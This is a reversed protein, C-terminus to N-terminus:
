KRVCIIRMVSQEIAAHESSAAGIAVDHAQLFARITKVPVLGAAPATVRGAVLAPRVDVMGAVNGNRDAAAAGSLSPKPAPEIGAATFRTASTTVGAAGGQALPDAVGVVMLDSGQAPAGGAGLPAAVLNRAGFLRVLALDSAHDAAVREAHGLPPVAIAECDDTVHAPAILEGASGVVIATGYEVARRLGPVPAATADPFGAFAAAMAHAVGDMTGETAQDYLITIGRVDSGRAVARVLFNKLGQAGAIVFSDPKLESSAIARRATKKEEEFLAPLSAESLRFTQIQIQGQASTWLSGTHTASARPVLKEPLGLRAGTAPDEILRWGVAQAFNPVLPAHDEHTALSADKVKAHKRIAIPRRHRGRQGPETVPQDSDLAAVGTPAANQAAKRAPTATALAPACAVILGAVIAAARVSM